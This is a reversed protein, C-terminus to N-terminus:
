VFMKLNVKSFLSEAHEVYATLTTFPTFPNMTKIIDARDYEDYGDTFEILDQPLITFRNLNLM